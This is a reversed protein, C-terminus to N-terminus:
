NNLAFCYPNTCEVPAMASPPESWVVALPSVVEVVVKSGVM